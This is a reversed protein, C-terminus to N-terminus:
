IISKTPINKEKIITRIKIDLYVTALNEIKVIKNNTDISVQYERTHDTRLSVGFQIYQANEIHEGLWDKIELGYLFPKGMFVLGGILAALSFILLMLALATSIKNNKM